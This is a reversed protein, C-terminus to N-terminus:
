CRIVRGISNHAL